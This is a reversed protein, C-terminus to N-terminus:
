SINHWLRTPEHITTFVHHNSCPPEYTEHECKLSAALPSTRLQHIVHTPSRAPLNTSALGCISLNTLANYVRETQTQHHDHSTDCPLLHYELHYQQHMLVSLPIAHSGQSSIKIIITKIYNTNKFKYYM